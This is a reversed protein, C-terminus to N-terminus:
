QLKLFKKLADSLSVNREVLWSRVSLSTYKASALFLLCLLERVFLHM